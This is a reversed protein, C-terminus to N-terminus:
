IDTAVLHSPITTTNAYTSDIKVQAGKFYSYDEFHKLFTQLQSHKAFQVTCFDRMALSAARLGTPEYQTNWTVRRAELHANQLGKRVQSEFNGKSGPFERNWDFNQMFKSHYTEYDTDINYVHVTPNNGFVRRLNVLQPTRKNVLKTKRNDQLSVVLRDSVLSARLAEMDQWTPCTVRVHFKNRVNKVDQVEANHKKWVANHDVVTKRQQATVKGRFVFTEETKKNQRNVSVWGQNKDTVVYAKTTVFGAKTRTKQTKVVHVLQGQNLVCVNPSKATIGARMQVKREVVYKTVPTTKTSSVAKALPVFDNDNFDVSSQVSVGSESEPYADSSPSATANNERDFSSLFRMQPKSVTEIEEEVVPCSERALAPLASLEPNVLTETSVPEETTPVSEEAEVPEEALLEEALEESITHSQPEPMVQPQTSVLQQAAPNQIPTVQVWQNQENLIMIRGDPFLLPTNQNVLYM